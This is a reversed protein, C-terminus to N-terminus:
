VSWPKIITQLASEANMGELALQLDDETSGGLLDLIAGDFVLATINLEPMVDILKQLMTLLMKNEKRFAIVALASFHPNPREHYKLPLDRYEDKDLLASILERIQAAIAWSLPNGDTPLADFFLVLLLHKAADLDCNYLEHYFERWTQPNSVYLQIIKISHM